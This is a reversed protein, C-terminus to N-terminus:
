KIGIVVLDYVEFNNWKVILSDDHLRWQPESAASRDPSLIQVDKVESCDSLRLIVQKQGSKEPNFNVAHLIYKKQGTKVLDFITYGGKM